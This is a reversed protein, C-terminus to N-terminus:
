IATFDGGFTMITTPIVVTEFKWWFTTPRVNTERIQVAVTLTLKQVFLPHQTNHSIFGM